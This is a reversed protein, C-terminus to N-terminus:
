VLMYVKPILKNVRLMIGKLDMWNTTYILLENRKTVFYYEQLPQVVTLKFM